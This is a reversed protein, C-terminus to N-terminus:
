IRNNWNIEYQVCDGIETNGIDAFAFILLKEIEEIQKRDKFCLKFIYEDEGYARIMMARKYIKGFTIASKAKRNLLYM